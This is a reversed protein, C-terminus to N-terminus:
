KKKLSEKGPYNSIVAKSLAELSNFRQYPLISTYFKGDEDKEVDLKKEEVQLTVADEDILYEFGEHTGKKQTM